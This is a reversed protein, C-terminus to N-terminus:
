GRRLRRQDKDTFVRGPIHEGSYGGGTHCTFLHDFASISFRMKQLRGSSDLPCAGSFSYLNLCCYNNRLLVGRDHTNNFM